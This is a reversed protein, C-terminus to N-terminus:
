QNLINKYLELYREAETEASCQQQVYLRGSEGLRKRLRSDLLLREAKALFDEASRFLLGNLDDAVLSRNGEVDAALVPKGYAMGELLSNAMGGESVSSNLVVQSSNYLAPMAAHHVEGRWSSFPNAALAALVKKGYSEDLIPGALVFRLQPHRRWLQALPRFCFLINKVPRIGAPLFFIFPAEAGPDCSSIDPVEVGQPIIQVRRKLEPLATVLRAGIAAHFAVLAAANAFLPREEATFVPEVGRYLDTGTITIIYPLQLERSVEAAITGCHLAHFSHLLDPSFTRLSDAQFENLPDDLSFVKVNCGAEGLHREIRQVTVANGRASEFYYPTLLAVKLGEGSKKRSLCVQLCFSSMIIYTM